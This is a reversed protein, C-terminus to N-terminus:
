EIGDGAKVAAPSLNVAKAIIGAFSHLYPFLQSISYVAHYIVYSDGIQGLFMCFPHFAHIVHDSGAGSSHYSGCAPSAATRSKGPPLGPHKYAQGETNAGSLHLHYARCLAAPIFAKRRFTHSRCPCQPYGEAAKGEARRPYRKGSSSKIFM